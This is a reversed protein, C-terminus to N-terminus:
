PEAIVEMDGNWFILIVHDGHRLYIGTAGDLVIEWGHRIYMDVSSKWNKM